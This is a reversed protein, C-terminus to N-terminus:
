LHTCLGTPHQTGVLQSHYNYRIYRSCHWLFQHKLTKGVFSLLGSNLTSECQVQIQKLILIFQRIITYKTTYYYHNGTHIDVELAKYVNDVLCSLYIELDTLWCNCVHCNHVTQLKLFKKINKCWKTMTCQLAVSCMQAVQKEKGSDQNKDELGCINVGGPKRVTMKWSQLTILITTISILAFATLM